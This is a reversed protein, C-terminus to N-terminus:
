KKEETGPPATFMWFGGVEEATVPGTREIEVYNRSPSALWVREIDHIRRGAPQLVSYVSLRYSYMKRGEVDVPAVEFDVGDVVTQEKSVADTWRIESDRVRLRTRDRFGETLRSIEAINSAPLGGLRGFISPGWDGEVGRVMHLAGRYITIRSKPDAFWWGIRVEEARFGAADDRYGASAVNKLVLVYPLGIGAQGVTVDTGLEKKLWDVIIAKGSETRVWFPAALLLIVVILFLLLLICRFGCRRGRPSPGGGKGKQEGQNGM